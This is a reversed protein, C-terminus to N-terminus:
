RADDNGPRLPCQPRRHQASGCYACLGERWHRAKEEKPLRGLQMPTAGGSPPPPQSSMARQPQFPKFARPTHRPRSMVRQDIKLALDVAEDLTKPAERGAMEDRIYDALGELFISRLSAGGWQLKAARTRFQSAFYCVPRSGQRLHHLQSEVEVESSPPVFTKKLEAAWEQAQGSLLSTLMAVKARATAYKSPQCEFLMDLTALLGDPRGDVGNWKDPLGIRPEASVPAPQRQLSTVSSSLQLVTETLSEMKTSMRDVVGRLYLVETSLPYDQPRHPSVTVHKKLRHSSNAEPPRTPPLRVYSSQRLSKNLGSWKDM